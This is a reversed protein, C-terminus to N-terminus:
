YYVTVSPFMYFSRVIFIIIMGTLRKTNIHFVYVVNFRNLRCCKPEPHLPIWRPYYMYCQHQSVSLPLSTGLHKFITVLRSSGFSMAALLRCTSSVFHDILLVFLGQKDKNSSSNGTLKRTSWMLWTQREQWPSSLPFSHVTFLDYSAKNPIIIASLMINIVLEVMCIWENVHVDFQAHFTSFLVLGVLQYM